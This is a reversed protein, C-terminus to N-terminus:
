HVHKKIGELEEKLALKMKKLLRIEIDSAAPRRQHQEIQESIAAHRAQLSQLRSDSANLGRTSPM